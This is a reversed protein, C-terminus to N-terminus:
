GPNLPWAAAEIGTSSRHETAFSLMGDAAEAITASRPTRWKAMSVADLGGDGQLRSGM